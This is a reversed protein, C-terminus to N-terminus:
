ITQLLPHGKYLYHVRLTVVRDLQWMGRTQFSLM